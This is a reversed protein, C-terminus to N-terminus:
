ESIGQAITQRARKVEGISLWVQAQLLVRHLRSAKAHLFDIYAQNLETQPTTQVAELDPTNIIM